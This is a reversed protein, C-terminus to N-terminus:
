RSSVAEREREARGRQRRRVVIYLGAVIAATAFGDVVAVIIPWTPSSAPPITQFQVIAGYDDQTQTDVNALRPDSWGVMAYLDGSAVGPPQRIDGRYSIGFDFNIPQDTMQVNHAWTTGGDTSYTYYVQFHDNTQSRNDNWVVDVRGNPAVNLQPYFSTYGQSPDSDEIVVPDTWNQGNDTSRQVVVQQNGSTSSSSPTASYAAVFTGHAGGAPTWGVGTEPGTGGGNGTFTPPGLASVTWTQGKDSSRAVLQPLPITTDYANGDPANANSFQAGEIAVVTGDHAAIYPNGFYSMGVLPYATGGATVTVHTFTNLNVPQGFSSGGDTSVSVDVEGDTLPSSQPATPFEKQYGVYVVDQPGSTDVALGTVGYDLPPNDAKSGRNNDVVTSTWSTGLDTSRSLITSFSAGTQGEDYNYGSMAYYLVGHSGWAIMAQASGADGPTMCYPYARPSPSNKLVHWTQGADDSRLLKCVRARLQATAAVIVRPNSPDVLMSTPGGYGRSPDKDDITMRTSATTDVINLGQASFSAQQFLSGAAAAAAPYAATAAAVLAAVALSARAARQARPM